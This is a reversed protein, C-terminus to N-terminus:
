LGAVYKNYLIEADKFRNDKDSGLIVISIPRGMSSDAAILLNAGALDNTGTKGLIFFPIVPLLENTSRYSKGNM